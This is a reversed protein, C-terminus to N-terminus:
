MNFKAFTGLSLTFWSVHFKAVMFERQNSANSLASFFEIHCQFENETGFFLKASFM